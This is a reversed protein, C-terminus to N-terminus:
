ERRTRAELTMKEEGGMKQLLEPMLNGVDDVDSGHQVLRAARLVDFLINKARNFLM